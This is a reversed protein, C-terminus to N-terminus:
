LFSHSAEDGIWKQFDHELWAKAAKDDKLNWDWWALSATKIISEHLPIKDYGALQGRSGAFVMHDGDQLVLSHRPTASALDFVVLREKYDEGAIPSSDETGTMFFISATIAGYVKDKYPVDEWIPLQSYAIHAKFIDQSYTSKKYPQGAMVQTTLAGFSHGSMGMKSLDLRDAMEGAINGAKIQDLIFAVDLFRDITMDETIEADRIVDWPHGEKGMWLSIDTGPHQIHMVAYDHSALYRGLFGAGDRSGGLGHSWIILPLRGTFDKPTYIKYPLTRNDRSGDVWEGRTIWSSQKDNQPDIDARWFESM